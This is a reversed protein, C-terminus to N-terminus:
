DKDSNSRIATQSPDLLRMLLEAQATSAAAAIGQIMPEMVPTVYVPLRQTYFQAINSYHEAM